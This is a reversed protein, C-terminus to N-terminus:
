DNAMEERETYFDHGGHTFLYKLNDRHWTSSSPSEFYLAGESEDWKEIMVLNLAEWCDDDPETTWYRGGEKVPSFQGDQMIVEEISNPFKDSWVRNLVVLMVLAKGETDESEAEAMAIKVLLYSEEASWDMSGIKSKYPEQTPEETVEPAMTNEPIDTIVTVESEAIHESPTNDEAMDVTNATAAVSLILLGVVVGLSIFLNAKM